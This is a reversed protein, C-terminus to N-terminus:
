KIGWASRWGFQIELERKMTNKKKFITQPTATIVVLMLM